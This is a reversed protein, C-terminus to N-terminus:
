ELRRLNELGERYNKSQCMVLLITPTLLTQKFNM